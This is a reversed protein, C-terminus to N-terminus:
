ASAKEVIKIEIKHEARMHKQKWRFLPTITVKSKCDEVVQCRTHVDWYSADSVYKGIVEGNPARLIFPQQRKLDVIAGAKERQQLVQWRALELKSDFREGDVVVPANGYKRRKPAKGAMERYQAASIAM